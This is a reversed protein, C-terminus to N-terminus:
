ATYRSHPSNVEQRLSLDLIMKCLPCFKPALSSRPLKNVVLLQATHLLDIHLGSLSNLYLLTM